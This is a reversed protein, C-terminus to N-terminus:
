STSHHLRDGMKNLYRHQDHLETRSITLYRFNFPQARELRTQIGVRPIQRTPNGRFLQTYRTGHAPPLGILNSPVLHEYGLQESLYFDVSRFTNMLGGILDERNLAWVKIGRPTRNFGNSEVDLM